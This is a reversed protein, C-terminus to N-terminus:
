ICIKGNWLYTQTQTKMVNDFYIILTKFLNILKYSSSDEELKWLKFHGILLLDMVRFWLRKLAFFSHCYHNDWDNFTINSMQRQDHIYKFTKSHFFYWKFNLSFPHDIKAIFVFKCEVIIILIRHYLLLVMSIMMVLSVSRNGFTLFYNYSM